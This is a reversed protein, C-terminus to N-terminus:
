CESHVSHATKELRILRQALGGRLDTQEEEEKGKKEKLLFGRYNTKM